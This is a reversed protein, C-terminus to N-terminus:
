KYNVTYIHESTLVRFLRDGRINIIIFLPSHGVKILDKFIDHAVYNPNDTPLFVLIRFYSITILFNNLKFFMISFIADKRKGHTDLTSFFIHESPPTSATCTHPSM